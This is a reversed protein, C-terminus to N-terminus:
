RGKPSYGFTITLTVSRGPLMGLTDGPGPVYLPGKAVQTVSTINHQDFLNNVSFRFKTQDFRSRNRLTFNFFLNTINFPNIPIVQNLTSGNNATNDNWMPGVRKNFFGVDFYKQHYSVGIAETNSPTNAVWLGFSSLGSTVFRATGVTTNAYVSLGRTVYVNAEAEFGKSVSDGSATYQTATPTNPDPSPSYDNQFHTYYADANLTLRKLKLVSGGQYTKSTTPKPLTTVAGNKVDFVSSPPIVSGTAFQWYVSWNNRLRYNVDFSPMVSRYAASHFVSSQGGLNGVTKGNDAFQTLDQRYYAYKVGGTLTLKSTAHYSFEAYPQISKTIFKEHFNPLATDVRTRPDSPIQYRDTNAWEYWLGAHFIGFKSVQTAVFNEGYKRYSNLKDVASTTTISTASNNYFQKNYYYYTYPKVDIIWGHGLQSNLDVYEFDTPVRYTYFKYYLPSAPDGTLLFNDGFQAVQARTPGKANPTNSKLLLLGAFGTLVTKDSFKYRYKISGATRNQFNFTQYGDSTLRHIDAFLSSKKSQGGFDGSDYNVDFLKTNFSGYSFSTRVGQRASLDHSLLNISGGFPTPGITSASGPSRDFDVSGIWQSPFFAWSHHTPSNTDEFPIGDFTIDYYGDKFGRFYTKSDGLGVGNSNVSFTGPVMQLLESYDSVPSTFNQIFPSSIETRASRTELVGDMPAAQAALSDSTAIDVVVAQVVDGVALSISVEEPRDATLQVTRNAVGFGQASVEISYKGPNLGSVSFHGHDDTMAKSVQGTSEQKVAIAANQVVSGAPDLVTGNLTGAANASAPKGSESQAFAGPTALVLMLVCFLPGLIAETLARRIRFPVLINGSKRLQM